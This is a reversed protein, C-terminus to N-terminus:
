GSVFFEIREASLIKKNGFAHLSLEIGPKCM